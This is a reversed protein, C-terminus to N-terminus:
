GLPDMLRALSLSEDFVTALRQNSEVRDDVRKGAFGM